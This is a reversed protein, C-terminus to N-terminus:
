DEHCACFVIGCSFGPGATRSRERWSALEGDLFALVRRQRAADGAGSGEVLDIEARMLEVCEDIAVIKGDLDDHNITPPRNTKINGFVRRKLIEAGGAFARALGPDGERARRYLVEAREYDGRALEVAALDALDSPVGGAALRALAHAAGGSDGAARLADSRRKCHARLAAVDLARARAFAADAGAADGANELVVSRSGAVEARTAGAGDDGDDIEAEADALHDLAPTLKGLDNECRALLHLASASPSMAAMEALV